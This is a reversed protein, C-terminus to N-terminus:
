KKMLNKIYEIEEERELRMFIPEGKEIVKINNINEYEKLSNWNVNEEIGLQRLMNKSTNEMFPKIMIAIQKLSAVLHYIVSKLKEMREEKESPQEGEVEKALSWPATEDIYKNTRSVFSWIAQIANTVEYKEMSEEFKAITEKADNELDKDVPNPTGNYSPVVGEFYKNVMSVTRNLLNSLDNCLDYNYKDIFEEPTFIGDTALM